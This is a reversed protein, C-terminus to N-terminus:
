GAKLHALGWTKYGNKSFEHHVETMIWELDSCSDVGKISVPTEVSLYPNGQCSFKLRTKIRKIKKYESKVFESAAKESSKVGKILKSPSGSGMVIKKKEANKVDYWFAGVSKYVPRDTSMFSWSKLDKRELNIKSIKKGSASKGYGKPSMVICNGAIKFVADKELSLRTLFHMDSETQIIHKIPSNKYDNAVRAKYGHEQSIKEVIESLSFGMWSREKIEKLSERFSAANAVITLTETPGDAFIENVIYNGVKVLSTEKYGLWLQIEKGTGPVEIREKRNDLVITLCDSQLGGEDEILFSILRDKIIDTINKDGVKILYDPTM